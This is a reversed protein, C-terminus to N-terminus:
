RYRDVFVTHKTDCQSQNPEEQGLVKDSNGTLQFPLFRSGSRYRGDM